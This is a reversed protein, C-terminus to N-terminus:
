NPVMGVQELRDRIESAAKPGVGEIALLDDYSRQALEGVTTIGAAALNKEIRVGIGLDVLSADGTLEPERSAVPSAAEPEFVAGAFASVDIDEADASDLDAFFAAAESPTLGSGDEI